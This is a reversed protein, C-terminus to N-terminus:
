TSKNISKQLLLYKRSKKCLDIRCIISTNNKQKDAYEWSSTEFFSLKFGRRLGSKSELKLFGTLASGV